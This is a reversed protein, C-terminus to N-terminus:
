KKQVDFLCRLPDLASNEMERGIEGRRAKGVGVLSWWGETAGVLYRSSNIARRQQEYGM